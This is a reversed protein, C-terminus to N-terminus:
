YVQHLVSCLASGIAGYGGFVVYVRQQDAQNVACRIPIPIALHPCRRSVSALIRNM